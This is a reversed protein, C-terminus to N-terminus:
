SDHDEDNNFPQVITQPAVRARVIARIMLDAPVGQVSAYQELEEAVRDDLHIDYRKM